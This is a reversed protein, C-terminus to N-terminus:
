SQPEGPSLLHLWQKWLDSSGSPLLDLKRLPPASPCLSCLLPTHGKLPLEESILFSLPMPRGPSLVQSSKPLKCHFRCVGYTSDAQARPISLGNVIAITAGSGGVAVGWLDVHSLVNTRTLLKLIIKTPTALGYKKETVKPIKM